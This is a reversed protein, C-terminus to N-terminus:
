QAEQRTGLRVEEDHPIGVLRDVAPAAGVVAVDAAELLIVGLGLHDQELLVVARRLGDEVRGHGDNVALLATVEFPEEGVAAPAKLDGVVFSVILGILGLEHDVGNGTQCQGVLGVRAIARHHVAGVGLGAGQFLGEELGAQRIAQDAGLAEVAPALDLVQDGVKAQDEVRGVLDAQQANEVGRRSAEPGLGDLRENFHGLPGPKGGSLDQEIEGM